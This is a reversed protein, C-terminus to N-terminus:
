VAPRAAFPWQLSTADTPATPDPRNTPTHDPRGKPDLSFTRIISSAQTLCSKKADPLCTFAIAYLHRAKLLLYADGSMTTAGTPLKIAMKYTLRLADGAPLTVRSSAVNTAGAQALQGEMLPRLADLGIGATGDTVMVNLDGIMQLGHYGIAFYELQKFRNGALLDDYIAKLQPNDSSAAAALERLSAETMEVEHWNSPLKFDFSDATAALSPVPTTAPTPSPTPSASPVSTTDPGLSYFLIPSAAPASTCGAALMFTVILALRRMATQRVRIVVVAVYWGGAVRSGTSVIM